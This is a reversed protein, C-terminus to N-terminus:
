TENPPAASIALEPGPSGTGSGKRVAPPPPPIRLEEAALEPEVYPLVATYMLGPVIESEGGLRGDGVAAYLQTLIGGALAEATARTIRDGESSVSRGQDLLDIMQGIGRLQILQAREPGSRIETVMLHTRAPDAALWRHFAYAVARLRNRWGDADALAVAFDILLQDLEAEFAACFCDDLDAYRAEFRAPPLRARACLAEVTLQEFGHEFCLDIFPRHFPGAMPPSPPASGDTPPPPPPDIALEERAAESGLYPEVIMCMADRGIRSEQPSDGQAVALYLRNFLGGALSEATARTLGEPAGPQDRGEDLLDILEQIGEGILLASREGARRVEVVTFHTVREDEALFRLLAYATARLRDRWAGLGDRAAEAQRRYRNFEVSYADFFCDEIGAYRSDFRSREVGARDCLAEVSV